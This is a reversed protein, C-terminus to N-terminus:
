LSIGYLKWGDSIKDRVLKLRKIYVDEEVECYKMTKDKEGQNVASAIEADATFFIKNWTAM